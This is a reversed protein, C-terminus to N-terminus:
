KEKLDELQNLGKTTENKGLDRTGGWVILVGKKILLKVEDNVSNTIATLSASPKIVGQVEFGSDLNYKVKSTCDRGHSDGIILIKHNKKKASTQKKSQKGV